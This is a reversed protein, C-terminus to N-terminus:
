YDAELDEIKNELSNLTAQTDRPDIHISIDTQRTEAAAYLPELFGDSPADPFEGVWITQAQGGETQLRGPQETITSPSVVTQHIDPIDRLAEEDREYDVAVTSEASVDPTEEPGTDKDEEGAGSADETSESETGNESPGRRPLLDRIM